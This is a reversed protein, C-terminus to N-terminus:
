KRTSKEYIERNGVELTPFRISSSQSSKYGDPKSHEVSRLQERVAIPVASKNEYTYGFWKWM